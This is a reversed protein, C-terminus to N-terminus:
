FPLFAPNTQKQQKKQTKKNIKRKGFVTAQGLWGMDYFVICTRLIYGFVWYNM